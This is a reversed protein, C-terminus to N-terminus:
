EKNIFNAVDCDTHFTATIKRMADTVVTTFFQRTVEAGCHKFLEESNSVGIIECISICAATPLVGKGTVDTSDFLLKM